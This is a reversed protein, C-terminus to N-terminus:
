PGLQPGKEKARGERGEVRAEIGEHHGMVTVRAGLLQIECRHRSAM